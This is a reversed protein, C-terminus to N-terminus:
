AVMAESLRVAGDLLEVRWIENANSIKKRLRVHGPTDPITRISRVVEKITRELAGHRKKQQPPAISTTSFANPTIQCIRRVDGRKPLAVGGKVFPSLVAFPERVLMESWVRPHHGNESGHHPIKFIQATGVPKTTSDVIVSWGRTSDSTEEELDSGLIVSQDGLTVWLVVAAQNPRTAVIKKKQESTQPVIQAIENFSLTMAASSPSLAIVEGACSGSSRQWLKTNEIAWQPGYSGQKAGIARGRLINLIKAFEQVGRDISRTGVSRVLTFFETTRLSVSCCFKASQCEDFVSALGGVHDDHWHSAVIIKVATGPNVGLKRLYSISAPLRTRKDLCSDVLLWEGLGLHVVVTEGYGPGFISVEIEDHEPAQATM